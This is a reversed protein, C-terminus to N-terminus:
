CMGKNGGSCRQWSVHGLRDSRMRTCTDGQEDGYDGNIGCRNIDSATLTNMLTECIPAFCWLVSALPLTIVCGAIKMQEPNM